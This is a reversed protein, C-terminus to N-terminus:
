FILFPVKRLISFSLKQSDGTLIRSTAPVGVLCLQIVIQFQTSVLENLLYALCNPNDRRSWIAGNTPVFVLEHLKTAM